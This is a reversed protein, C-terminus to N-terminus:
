EKSKKLNRMRQARLQKMMLIMQQKKEPSIHHSIKSSSVAPATYELYAQLPINNQWHGSLRAITIGVAFILIFFIAMTKTDLSTRGPLLKFGLAKKKPCTEICSMCASCELSNIWTKRRIDINGPCVTECRGCDICHSPQRHVRGLSFFGIIGLLAGYPCLYRCWFNRIAITLCALVVIVVFATISMDTFFKLMTIDAFQNYPSHIFQEISSDPMKLFIQYIFFGAILYKLSRLLSDFIVPIRLSKKLVTANLKDACESLFGIPCVWSCFGKKAVVASTCIILFLVLASPHILDITSSYLWHKLSVLASIPLFAEVGAPREFDPILGNELCSVFLYFKIGIFIVISSFFIQVLRRTLLPPIKM